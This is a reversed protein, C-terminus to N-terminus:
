KTMKITYIQMSSAYSTLNNYNVCFKNTQSDYINFFNKQQYIFGKTRQMENNYTLYYDDAAVNGNVDLAFGTKAALKNISVREKNLSLTPPTNKINPLFYNSTLESMNTSPYFYINNNKGEVKNTNLILSNDGYDLRSLRGINAYYEKEEITNKLTIDFNNSTTEDDKIINLVGDFGDSEKLGIAMKKPFSINCNADLTAINSHVYVFFFNSGDDSRSYTGYGTSPDDIDIPIVRKDGIYIDNNIKLKNINVNNVNTFDVDDDFRVHGTFNAADNVILSKTELLNNINANTDVSLANANLNNKVNLDKNFNYSEGLFDGEQIQTANLTSIGSSRIYIDDLNKYSKTYYDYMVVDDFCSIGKVQFKTNENNVEESSVIGNFLYKRDFILKNTKNTGIGVNKDADITLSPYDEKASYQPLAHVGYLSDIEQSSKGVHFELPMGATTSIISPSLNSGGIIGISLKSPEDTNTTDNRIAIHM